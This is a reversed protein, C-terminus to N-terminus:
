LEIIVFYICHCPANNDIGSIAILYSNGILNKEGM